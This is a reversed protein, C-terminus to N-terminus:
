LHVFKVVNFIPPIFVEEKSSMSCENPPELKDEISKDKNSVELTVEIYPINRSQEFKSLMFKPFIFVEETRFILDNNLLQEFNAVIFRFLKSVELTM